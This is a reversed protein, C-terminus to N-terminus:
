AAMFCALAENGFIHSTLIMGLRGWADASRPTKRVQALGEEVAERIAADVGSLEPTPPDIVKPGAFFAWYIGGGLGATLLLLGLGLYWHRATASM